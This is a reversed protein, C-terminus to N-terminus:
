LITYVITFVQSVSFTFDKM